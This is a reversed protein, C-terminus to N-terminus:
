QHAFNFQWWIHDLEAQTFRDTALMMRCATEWKQFTRTVDNKRRAKAREQCVDRYVNFM